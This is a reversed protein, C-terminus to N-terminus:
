SDTTPLLLVMGVHLLNPNAGISQRNLAHIRPWYGAIEHLTASDGLHQQAINWLNDGPRVVVEQVINRPTSHPAPAGLSRDLTISTQRPVWTPVPAVLKETAGDPEVPKEAENLSSSTAILQAGLDVASAPALAPATVLLGVNLVSATMGRLLYPCHKSLSQVLDGRQSHAAWLILGQCLLGLFIWLTYGISALLLAQLFMGTAAPLNLAPWISDDFEMVRRTLMALLLMILILGLSIVGFKLRLLM